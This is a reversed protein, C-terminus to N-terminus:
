YKERLNKIFPIWSLRERLKLNPFRVCILKHFKYHLFNFLKM